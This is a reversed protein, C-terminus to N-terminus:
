YLSIIYLSFVHSKQKVLFEFGARKGTLPAGARPIVPRALRANLFDLGQMPSSTQSSTFHLAVAGCFQPYIVPNRALM